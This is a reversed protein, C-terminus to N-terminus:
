ETPALLSTQGGAGVWPEDLLEGPKVSESPKGRFRSIAQELLVEEKWGVSGERKKVGHFVRPAYLGPMRVGTMIIGSDLDHELRATGRWWNLQPEDNGESERILQALLLLPQEVIKTISKLAFSARALRVHEEGPKFEENGQAYQFYDFTSLAPHTLPKGRKCMMAEIADYIREPTTTTYNEWIPQRSLWEHAEELRQWEERSLRLKQGGHNRMGKLAYSDVGSRWALMRDHVSARGSEASFLAVDIGRGAVSCAVHVALATKGISPQAGFGSFEGPALRFHNDVGPVGLAIGEPEESADLRKIRELDKDLLLRELEEPSEGCLETIPVSSGDPKVGKYWPAKLPCGVCKHQPFREHIFACGVPPSQLAHDFKQDM